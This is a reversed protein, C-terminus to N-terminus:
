EVVVGREGDVIGHLLEGLDEGRENMVWELTQGFTEGNNEFWDGLGSVFGKVIGKRGVEWGVSAHDRLKLIQGPDLKLMDEVVYYHLIEDGWGEAGLDNHNIAGYKIGTDKARETDGSGLYSHFHEQMRGQHQPPPPYNLHINFGILGGSDDSYKKRFKRQISGNSPCIGRVVEKLIIRVDEMEALEENSWNHLLESRELVCHRLTRM